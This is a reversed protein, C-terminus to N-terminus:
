NNEYIYNIRTINSSLGLTNTHNEAYQGIITPKLDNYRTTYYPILFFMNLIEDVNLRRGRGSKQKFSSDSKDVADFILNNVRTLNIGRDIKSVVSLAPIKGDNFKELNELHENGGYYSYKCLRDAQVKSKAFILYKDTPNYIKKLLKRCYVSSSVLEGLFLKRQRALVELSYNEKPTLKKKTNLIKSFKSSFSLYKKNEEPFLKFNVFTVSAKNVIESSVAEKIDVEHIIPCINKLLKKKEESLSGSFMLTHKFTNNLFVKIYEDTLAFDAEDALVLDYENGEWRHVTQYCEFDIITILDECGWKRLEEKFMEDRLLVSNSLYLVTKPNLKKVCDIMIKGKGVGTPILVFGNYNNQEIVSLVEQQLLDKPKIM